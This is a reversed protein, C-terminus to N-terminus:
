EYSVAKDDALTARTAKAEKKALKVAVPGVATALTNEAAQVALQARAVVGEHAQCESELLSIAASINARQTVSPAALALAGENSTAGGEASDTEGGDGM